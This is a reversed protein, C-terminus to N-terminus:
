WNREPRLSGHGEAFCSFHYAHLKTCRVLPPLLSSPEAGAALLHRGCIHCPTEFLGHLASLCLSFVFFTTSSDFAVSHRLLSAVSVLPSRPPVVLTPACPRCLAAERRLWRVLWPLRRVAPLEELCCIMESTRATLEKFVLTRSPQRAGLPMPDASSSVAAYCPLWCPSSSSGSVAATEGGSCVVAILARLTGKLELELTLSGTPQERVGLRTASAARSLVGARAQELLPKSPPRAMQLHQPSPNAREVFGGRQTSVVIIRRVRHRMAATATFPRTIAGGAAAERRAATGSAGARLQPAVMPNISVMLRKIKPGSGALLRGRGWQGQRLDGISSATCARLALM